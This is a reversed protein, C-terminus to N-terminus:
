RRTTLKPSAGTTGASKSSGLQHLLLVVPVPKKGKPLFLNARITVGDRTQFSVEKAAFATFSVSALACILVAALLSKLATFRM